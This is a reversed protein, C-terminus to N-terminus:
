SNKPMIEEDMQVLDLSENSIPSKNAKLNSLGEDKILDHIDEM